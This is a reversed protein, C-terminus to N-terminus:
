SNMTARSARNSFAQQLAQINDRLEKRSREWTAFQKRFQVWGAVVMTVALVAVGGAVCVLGGALSLQTVDALWLGLATLAIPLMAVWLLGATVWCGATCLLALRSQRLDAAVLRAQLEAIRGVDRAMGGLHETLDRAPRDSGNLTTQHDM